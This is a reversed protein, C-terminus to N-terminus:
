EAEIIKTKAMRDGLKEKGLSLIIFEIPWISITINRLILRFISPKSGDKAIIKIKMIRKGISQGGIIDKMIFVLMCVGLLIYYADYKFGIFSVVNTIMFLVAILIFDIIFSLIRKDQM